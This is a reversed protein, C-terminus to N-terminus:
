VPDVKRPRKFIPVTSCPEGFMISQAYPRLRRTLEVYASAPVPKESCGKIVIRQGQYSPLEMQDIAQFFALKYFEEATGQFVTKAFPEAYSVVLMYAWVPIIADSSCLVLLNVGEYQSWDHAQLAERFDKEKLILEMFLYDKLDFTALPEEPFFNELKITILGSEAVRNVLPKEESNM